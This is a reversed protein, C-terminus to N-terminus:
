WDVFMREYDEIEDLTAPRVEAQEGKFSGPRSCPMARGGMQSEWTEGCRTCTWFQRIM